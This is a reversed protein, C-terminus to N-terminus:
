GDAQMRRLFEADGDLLEKVRPTVRCPRLGARRDRQEYRQESPSPPYERKVPAEFLEVRGGGLLAQVAPHAPDVILDEAHIELLRQREERGLKSLEEKEAADVRRQELVPAASSRLIALLGDDEELIARAARALLLDSSDLYAMGHAVRPIREVLGDRVLVDVVVAQGDHRLSEAEFLDLLTLGVFSAALVATWFGWWGLNMHQLIRALFAEM